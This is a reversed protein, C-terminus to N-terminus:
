IHAAQNPNDCAEPSLPLHIHLLSPIINAPSFLTLLFGQEPAVGDVM